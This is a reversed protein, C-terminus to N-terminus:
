YLNFVMMYLILQLYPFFNYNLEKFPQTHTHTHTHTHQEHTDYGPGYFIPLSLLCRLLSHVFILDYDYLSNLILLLPFIFLYM